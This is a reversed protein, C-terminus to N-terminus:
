SQKRIYDVPQMIPDDTGKNYKNTIVNSNPLMQVTRCYDIRDCQLKSYGNPLLHTRKQGLRPLFKDRLDRFTGVTTKNVVVAVSLSNVSQSCCNGHCPSSSVTGELVM